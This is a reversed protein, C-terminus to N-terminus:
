NIAVDALYKASKRIGLGAAGRCTHILWVLSPCKNSDIAPMVSNYLSTLFADFINDKDSGASVHEYERGDDM